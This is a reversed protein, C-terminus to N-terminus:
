NIMALDYCHSLDVLYRWHIFKQTLDKNSKVNAPCGDSGIIKVKSKTLKIQEYCKNRFDTGMKEGEQM